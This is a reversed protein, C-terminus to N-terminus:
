GKKSRRLLGHLYYHAEPRIAVLNSTDNNTKDFDIHHVHYEEPNLCYGLHQELIYRHYMVYNTKSRFPHNSLKIMLYGTSHLKINGEQSKYTKNHGSVFRKPQGKIWGYERRNRTAIPAPQGCGCECLKM